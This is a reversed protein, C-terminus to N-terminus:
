PSVVELDDRDIASLWERLAKETSTYFGPEAEGEYIEVMSNLVMAELALAALESDGTCHPESDDSLKAVDEEFEEAWKQHDSAGKSYAVLEWGSTVFGARSAEACISASNGASGAKGGYEEPLKEIRETLKNAYEDLAPGSLCEEGADLGAQFMEQAPINLNGEGQEVADVVAQPGAKLGEIADAYLPDAIEALDDLEDTLDGASVYHSQEISDDTMIKVTYDAVRLGLADDGNGVLRDCTAKGSLAEVATPTASSSSPEPAASSPSSSAKDEASGCATLALALPLVVLASRYRM